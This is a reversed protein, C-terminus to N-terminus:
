QTVMTSRSEEESVRGGSEERVTAGTRRVSIRHSTGTLPLRREGGRRSHASVCDTGPARHLNRHSSADEWTGRWMEGSYTDVMTDVSCANSKKYSYILRYM